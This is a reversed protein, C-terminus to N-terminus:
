LRKLKGRDVLHQYLYDVLADHFADLLAPDEARKVEEIATNIDKEFAINVLYQVRDRLEPLQYSAVDDQAGPAQQQESQQVDKDPSQEKDLREGIVEHLVDREPSPETEKGQTEQQSQKRREIEQQLEQLQQELNEYNEAM